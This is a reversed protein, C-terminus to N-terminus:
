CGINDGYMDQGHLPDMNGVVTKGTLPYPPDEGCPTVTEDGPKFMMHHSTKVHRYELGETLMQWAPDVQTEGDKKEANFYMGGKFCGDESQDNTAPKGKVFPMPGFGYLHDVELGAGLPDGKQNLLTAMLQATGGGLSHGTLTLGKTCTEKMMSLGGTSKIKALLAELEVKIGHHVRLGHFEDDGWHLTNPAGPKTGHIQYGPPAYPDMLGTDIQSDSGRFAMLCKGEKVWLGAYDTDWMMPHVIAQPPTTANVLMWSAAETWFASRLMYPFNILFAFMPHQGWLGGAAFYTDMAAWCADAERKCTSAKPAPDTLMM